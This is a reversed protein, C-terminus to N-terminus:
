KIAYEQLKLTIKKKLGELISTTIPKSVTALVFPNKELIHLDKKYNASTLIFVICNKPKAVSYLEKLFQSGNMVPMNLDLFIVYNEQPSYTKKLYELAALGNIFVDTVSPFDVKKLAKKLLFTFIEDDEILLLKYSM